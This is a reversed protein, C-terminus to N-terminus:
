NRRRMKRRELQANQKALLAKGYGDGGPKKRKSGVLQLIAVGAKRWAERTEPDMAQALELLAAIDPAAPPTEAMPGKRLKTKAIRETVREDVLCLPDVGLYDAAILIAHASGVRTRGTFWHSMNSKTMGTLRQIEARADEIPIGKARIAELLRDKLRTEASVLTAHANM